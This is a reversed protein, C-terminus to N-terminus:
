ELEIWKKIRDKRFTRVAQRTVCFGTVYAGRSRWGRLKRTTVKGKRDRYTFGAFPGSRVKWWRADRARALRAVRSLSLAGKRTKRTM